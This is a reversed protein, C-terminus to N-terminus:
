GPAGRDRDDSRMAPLAIGEGGGDIEKIFGGGLVEEAEIRSAAGDDIFGIAIM